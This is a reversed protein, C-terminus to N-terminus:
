RAVERPDTTRQLRAADTGEGRLTALRARFSEAHRCGDRCRTMGCVQELMEAAEEALTIAADRQAEAATRLEHATKGLVRQVTVTFREGTKDDVLQCEIYNDGGGTRYMQVMAATLLKAGDGGLALDFKGSQIVLDRINTRELVLDSFKAAADDREREAQQRATRQAHYDTILDCLDACGVLTRSREGSRDTPYDLAESFRDLIGAVESSWGAGTDAPAPPTPTRSRRLRSGRCKLCNCGPVEGM